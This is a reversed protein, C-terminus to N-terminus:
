VVLVVWSKDASLAPDCREMCGHIAAAAREGQREQKLM